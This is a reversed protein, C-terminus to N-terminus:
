ISPHIFFQFYGVELHYMIHIYRVYSISTIYIGPVM